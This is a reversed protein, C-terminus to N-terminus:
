KTQPPLDDAWCNWRAIMRDAIERREAPTFIPALPDTSEPDLVTGDYGDFLVRWERLDTLTLGLIGGNARFKKGTSLEITDSM